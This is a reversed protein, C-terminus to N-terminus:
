RVLERGVAWEMKAMALIHETLASLYALQLKTMGATARARSLAAGPAKGAAEFLSRVKQYHAERQPWEKEWYKLNEYAQRVELRVRDQLEARKLEGQRQEAKKEKIQAGFSWDLPVRVGFTMDWNNQRLPFRQATLEYDGAVFVTPSKRGQALNVSIADMQAQYTQSQLEPRLEMAWLAAKQPDITYTEGKLTGVVRFTTDLELNLSKLFALKSTDLEHRAEATQVRAEGVLTEAEIREWPDPVAAAIQLLAAEEKEASALKEQALVLRYFATKAALLVDRKVSEYNSLAQKHAAQALQLTNIQRGGEYLTTRAYGRGSYINQPAGPFLLINRFDESLSFPYRAGFKTASAQLGLEPIFQLKAEKVRQEAIITNQEASLLRPENLQAQRLADDVTFVREVVEDTPAPVEAARCLPSLGALALSLLLITKKM